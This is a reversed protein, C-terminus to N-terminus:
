PCVGNDIVGNCDDDLGNCVEASGFTSPSCPGFGTGDAFCTTTGAACVGSMGTSCSLSSGAACACGENVQGNCNNDIADGCVEPNGGTLLVCPGYGAGSPLCTQEGRACISTLGTACNIIAGPICAAVDDTIGNCDDDTGNSPVELVPGAVPLCATFSRGDPRCTMTGMTCLGLLGTLCSESAGPTCACGEDATGDCDSDIGDPPCTEPLPAVTPTCPSWSMGADCTQTGTSCAGDLGTTCARIAGSTCVCGEDATGDCDSDLGDACLDVSPGTLSACHSWGRGDADCTQTGASCM